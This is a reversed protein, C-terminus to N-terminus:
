LGLHHAYNAGDARYCACATAELGPRDIVRLAEGRLDILGRRRLDAITATVGSPQLGLMYALFAPTVPFLAARARDQSMLLWRALRANPAPRFLCTTSTALQATTVGLYRQLTTRLVASAAMEASLAESGIRLASGAGQVLVHFPAHAVGLSLEAGLMGERGVMGVELKPCPTVEMVLSLFGSLPFYAYRM